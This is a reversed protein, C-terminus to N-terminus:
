IQHFIANNWMFVCKFSFLNGVCHHHEPMEQWCDIPETEQHCQQWRLSTVNLRMTVFHNSSSWHDCWLGTALTGLSATNRMFLFHWSGYIPLQSSLISVFPNGATLGKTVIAVGLLTGHPSEPHSFVHYWGQIALTCILPIIVTLGSEQMKGYM